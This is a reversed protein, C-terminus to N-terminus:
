VSVDFMLYTVLVDVNSAGTSHYQMRLVLGADLPSSAKGSVYSDNTGGPPVPINEGFQSIITDPTGPLVVYFDAQDGLASQAGIWVKAGFLMTQKPISFDLDTTAGATAVYIKGRWIADGSYAQMDMPSPGFYSSSPM